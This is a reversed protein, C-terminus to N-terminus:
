AAVGETAGVIWRGDVSALYMRSKSKGGPFNKAPGDSSEFYDTPEAETTVVWQTASERELRVITEAGGAIHGGDKYIKAVSDAFDRCSKCDPGAVKLFAETKGTEQMQNGLAVWRRIFQRATEGKPAQTLPDVTPATNTPTEITGSPTWTSMPDAPDDGGDCSTLTLAALLALSAAVRPKRM